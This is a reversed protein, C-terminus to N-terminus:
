KAGGKGSSQKQKTEGTVIYSGARDKMVQEPTMKMYKCILDFVRPECFGGQCRGSGPTVRRKVADVSRPPLPRKFADIIEGETVTRCRCVITGFAPDEKIVAKKEDESMEAFRRVHRTGVFKRNVKLELGAKHMLRVTERAIAPASTLGPSKIGGNNFFGPCTKSEAVIFDELGADARLGSYNRVSTRYNVGPVTRTANKRVYDLGAETTSYDDVKWDKSDPGVIINGHVTPGVLVGKGLKSPCPFIVMNVLGEETTDLIYYEGSKPTIKFFPPEVFAAVEDSHVGACNVVYRAKKDGTSTKVTFTGDAEKTVGTVKCDLEVKAGGEVACEAQASALEWPSVSGASPAYLACKVERSLAPEMTFLEEGEIIRLGPV